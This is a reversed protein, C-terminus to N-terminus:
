GLHLFSCSRGSNSNVQTLTEGGKTQRNQFEIYFDGLRLWTNYDRGHFNPSEQVVEFGLAKTYFEITELYSNTQICLHHVYSNKMLNSIGREIFTSIAIAERLKIEGKMKGMNIRTLIILIM